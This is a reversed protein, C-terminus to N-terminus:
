DSDFTLTIIDAFMHPFKQWMADRKGRSRAFLMSKVSSTIYSEDEGLGARAKLM